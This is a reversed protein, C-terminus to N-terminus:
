SPNGQNDGVPRLQSIQRLRLAIEAESDIGYRGWSIAEDRLDSAKEPQGLFGMVEAKIALLSFLLAGNQANKAAVISPEVFRLALDTQGASLSLSAMQIAAQATHIDQPGFLANFSAYAKAYDSAAQRVDRGAVVRARVLYAFGLRHDGFNQAQAIEIARDAAALRRADTAGPGLATEIQKIWIRPTKVAGQASYGRGLPNLRDLLAPLVQAVQVRTMGNKIEPAYYARLILMDYPTLVINFNDDNFVSDALRYLDNLPGIAQALEEHLCDRAEQPAVDNPMFISINTRETLATWDTRRGFRHRRYGSWDSVGPAVFCAATPVLRQMKKKPLTEIVVSASGPTSIRGIDIGAEDRFRALLRDLDRSVSDPVDRAFAVTIPGEFRTLRPVELGSELAFTLDLFERAIDANSRAVGKDSIRNAFVRMGPRDPLVQVQRSVTPSPIQACAALLFLVAVSKLVFKMAM